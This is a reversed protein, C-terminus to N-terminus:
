SIINENQVEKGEDEKKKEIAIKQTLEIQKRELEAMKKSLSFLKIILLFIVILYVFNVTSEFGLLESFFYPIKTFISVLVLIASFVIWFISDEIKMKSKGVRSIIYICTAICCLVLVIRLEISM